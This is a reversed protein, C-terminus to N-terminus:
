KPAHKCQNNILCHAALLKLSHVEFLVRHFLLDHATPRLRPNHRVCMQTFEQWVDLLLDTVTNNYWWQYETYFIILVCIVPTLSENFVNIEPM